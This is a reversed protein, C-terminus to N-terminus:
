INFHRGGRNFLRLEAEPLWEKQADKGRNKSKLKSLAGFIIKIEKTRERYRRKRPLKEM